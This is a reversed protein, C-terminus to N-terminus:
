VSKADPIQLLQRLQSVAVKEWNPYGKPDNWFEAWADNLTNYIPDNTEPMAIRCGMNRVGELAKEALRKLVHDPYCRFYEPEPEEGTVLVLKEWHQKIRRAVQNHGTLELGILMVRMRADNAPHEPIRLFPVDFLRESRLACLHVNLWAFAPGITYIAFLDCFFETVWGHWCRMWQKIYFHYSKPSRRRDEKELEQALYNLAHEVSWVFNERFYQVRPDYEDNLLPHALEHYLDPLHLMFDAEGLPVCLLGLDPFIYFYDQSLASVIPSQLPYCIEARIREVLRNLYKDTDNVRNLAAIGVTELFDLEEKSSRLRRLLISHIQPDGFSPHDAVAELAVLVHKIRERCTRELAQFEIPSGPHIKVLLHKGREILHNYAGDFYDKM